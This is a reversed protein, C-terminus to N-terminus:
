RGDREPDRRVPPGPDRLLGDNEPLEPHGGRPESPSAAREHVIGARPGERTRDAPSDADRPRALESEVTGASPRRVSHPPLM